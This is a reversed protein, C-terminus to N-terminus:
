PLVNMPVSRVVKKISSFPITVFTYWFTFTFPCACAQRRSRELRLTYIDRSFNSCVQSKECRACFNPPGQVSIFGLIFFGSSSHLFLRVGASYLTSLSFPVSCGNVPFYTLCLFFPVYVQAPQPFSNNEESVFNSEPVPQGLKQAGTDLSFRLISRSSLKPLLLVSTSHRTHPPCRPCTKSSPGLGVPRRKQM